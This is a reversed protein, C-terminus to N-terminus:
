GHQRRHKIVEQYHKFIPNGLDRKNPEPMPQRAVIELKEIPTIDMSHRQTMGLETGYYITAPQNIKFQITIAELIRQTNDNAMFMARDIDQNDLQTPFLLKPSLEQYHRSLESRAAAADIKGTLFNKIIGSFAFDIYGDFLDGYGNLLRSQVESPTPAEFLNKWPLPLNLTEKFAYTKNFDEIWAEAILLIDPKVQKLRTRFEHWFDITPGIVHDLRIGDIDLHQVWFEAAKIVYDRAERNQLNIKPQTNFHLFTLYETPWKTFIFWDRYQSNPDSQADLFFPHRYSLHNPVFDIILKMQRRNIEEGLRKLDELTALREDPAHFDVVDYGHYSLGKLFPTLYLVTAGLEQIYDLDNIVGKINGGIFEPKTPDKHPDYGAFRDILVQYLVEQRWSNMSTHDSSM